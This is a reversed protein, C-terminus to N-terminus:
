CPPAHSLALVSQGGHFLRNRRALRRKERGLFPHHHELVAEVVQRPQDRVPHPLDVAVVPQGVDRIAHQLNETEM